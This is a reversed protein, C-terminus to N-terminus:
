SRDWGYPNQAPKAIFDIPRGRRFDRSADQIYRVGWLMLIFADARDPSRGLRKKTDDKGEIQIKSGHTRIKYKVSALQKILEKDDLISVKGEQFLKQAHFWMKAKLNFYHEDETRRGCNIPLIEAGLEALKDTVGGGVGIDDIVCLRANHKKYMNFVKVATDMTSQRHWVERELLMNGKGYYIIIEDDGYRAVDVAVVPKDEQVIDRNVAAKVLDRSIIIDNGTLCDWSGNMFKDVWDPPYIARLNAEYDYPLYPNDSPLSPIFCYYETRTTGDKLEVVYDHLTVEITKKQGKEDDVEYEETRGGEVFADRLWCEDPNTAMLGFYQPRTGDPLKHRLRSQSMLFHSQPIESAEDLAIAGIEMSKMKSVSSEESMGMYIIESVHNTGQFLKITNEAKNHGTAPNYIEKPLESLAELLLKLTSNKFDSLHYRAMIIRNGPYKISLDKVEECLWKSKGGGMAGGFLKYKYPLM